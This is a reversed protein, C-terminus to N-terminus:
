CAVLCISTLCRSPIPNAGGLPWLLASPAQSRRGQASDMHQTWLQGGLRPVGAEDHCLRKSPLLPHPTLESHVVAPAPSLEWEHIPKKFGSKNM